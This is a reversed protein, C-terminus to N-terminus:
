KMQLLPFENVSTVSLAIFGLSIDDLKLLYAVSKGKEVQKFSAKLLSRERDARLPNTHFHFSDLLKKTYGYIKYNDIKHIVLNDM